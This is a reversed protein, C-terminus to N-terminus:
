MYFRYHDQLKINPAAESLIKGVEKSFELTIPLYTSFSTTNWNLKTLGLIEEAIEKIESDGEHILLLPQPISHGPYTRIRPIYGSSYLLHMRDTMSILTGRLVPYSGKRMFRYGKRISFAVFDRKATKIAKGFGEVEAKNFTTSKHVVVRAPAHMARSEYKRICEDLLSEAQQETLHAEKTRKDVYVESGRLVLGQGDHTFIQAMSTEINENLMLKDKYFSIGVYCTDQRLKALRWPKGNAKYFLATSFNWAFSAPDQRRKRFTKKDKILDAYNLIADATSERLLQIPRANKLAMSRGKLANRFDYGKQPPKNEEIELSVGWDSLFKQNSNRFEMLQKELPTAKPTKAGRTFKSIGCYQEILKPICCLIVNPPNDDLLVNKIKEMYLNVATGIRENANIVKVIKDIESQLITQQLADVVEVDCMFNTNKSIGPFDSYLWKNHEHCPIPKKIMELIQKAKGLMSRDAILTIRIVDISSKEGPYNYPGFTSLGKRPDKEEKSDRFILDPEQVYIASFNSM